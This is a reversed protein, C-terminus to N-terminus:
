RDIKYLMALREGTAKDAAVRAIATLEAERQARLVPLFRAATAAKAARAGPAEALAAVTRAVEEALRDVAVVRSFLLCALDADAGVEAGELLLSRARAPGVAAALTATICGDPPLGWRGWGFVLRARPTALRVDCALVLSAGGGVAPGDVAVVVPRPCTVIAEVVDAFAAANTMLLDTLDGAAAAATLVDVDGGACFAPGEACLLVAGPGDATFAERLEAVAQQDLANRREPACLEVSTGWAHDGTRVRQVIL